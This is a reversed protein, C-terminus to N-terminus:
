MCRAVKCQWTSGLRREDDSFLDATQPQLVLAEVTLDLRGREFLATFGSSVEAVALLRHATGWDEWHALCKSSSHRTTGPKTGPPCLREECCARFCGSPEAPLAPLRTLRYVDKLLVLRLREKQSGASCRV